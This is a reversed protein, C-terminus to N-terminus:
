FVFVFGQLFKTQFGTLAAFFNNEFEVSDNLMFLILIGCNSKM